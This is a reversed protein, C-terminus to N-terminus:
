SNLTKIKIGCNYNYKNIIFDFAGSINYNISFSLPSLVTIQYIRNKITIFDGTILDSCDYDFVGSTVFARALCENTPTNITFNITRLDTRSHLNIINFEPEYIIYSSIYYNKPYYRMQFRNISVVLSSTDVTTKFSSSHIKLLGFEISVSRNLTTGQRTIGEADISEGLSRSLDIYHELIPNPKNHDFNM